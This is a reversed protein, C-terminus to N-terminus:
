RRAPHAHTEGRQRALLVALVTLLLAPAYVGPADFWWHHHDVAGRATDYVHLAAHAVLFVATVAVLPYRYRPAFAAWVQAVGVTAFACGIDRVFHPNFEGFDPVGAPLDHYWRLPDLLMWAANALSGAGLVLLGWFWADRRTAM